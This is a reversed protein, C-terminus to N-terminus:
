RCIFENDSQPMSLYIQRHSLNSGSSVPEPYEKDYGTFDFSRDRNLELNQQEQLLQYPLPLKNAYPSETGLNFVIM